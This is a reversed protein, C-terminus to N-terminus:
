KRSNAMAKASAMIGVSASSKTDRGGMGSPDNFNGGMGSLNCEQPEDDLDEIATFTTSMEGGLKRSIGDEPKPDGPSLSGGRRAEFAKRNADNLRKNEDILDQKERELLAMEREKLEADVEAATKPPPENSVQKPTNKTIIEDVLDFVSYGDFKDLRGDTYARLICPLTQITIKKNNIIRKRVDSNDICVRTMGLLGFVDVGSSDISNLLKMSGNSYKSYLLVSLQIDM